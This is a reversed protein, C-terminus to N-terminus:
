IIHRKLIKIQFEPTWYNDIEKFCNARVEERRSGYELFWDNITDTLSEVSDKVFFSGTCGQTIAEFEPMQNSFDNHTIVPTGFVLSHMATLGVNGPSVCLDANFILEGLVREDYCPGYFWVSSELAACKTLSQLEELVEGAGVFVFNYHKGQKHCAELAKIIMHLKKVPTLRGVFILTKNDNGFHSKYVFSNNLSRRIELQHEYDLSNHIVYLKNPNLGDRIMLERAHNGYLFTGGNPLKFLLRKVRREFGSEKGYYGHSWFFVNKKPYLFRALLAFVWTSIDKTQAFVLYNVYERVNLLRVVGSQWSLGMWHKASLEKTNGKLVSYDMKKIDANSRGFFWDCEYEKDILRFIAQRYHPAFCYVVCTKDM